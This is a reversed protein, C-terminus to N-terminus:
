VNAADQWGAQVNGPCDARPLISRRARKISMDVISGFKQPQHFM